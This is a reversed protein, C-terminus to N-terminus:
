YRGIISWKKGRVKTKDRIKQIFQRNEIIVKSRIMYITFEPNINILKEFGIQIRLIIQTELNIDLVTLVFLFM